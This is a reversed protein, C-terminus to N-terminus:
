LLPLYKTFLLFEEPVIKGSVYIEVLEICEIYMRQIHIIKHIKNPPNETIKPGIEIM